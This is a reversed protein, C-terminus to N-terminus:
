GRHAAVRGAAAVPQLPRRLAAPWHTLLIHSSIVSLRVLFSVLLSRDEAEAAAFHHTREVVRAHLQGHVAVAFILAHTLRSSIISDCPLRFSASNTAMIAALLTSRLVRYDAPSFSRLLCSADLLGFGTKAHHNELVATDNHAM